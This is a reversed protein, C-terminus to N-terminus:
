KKEGALLLTKEDITIKTKNRLSDAMQRYKTKVKEQQLRESIEGKVEDLSKQRASERKTVKVLAFGDRVKVPKSIEGVKLSFAVPDIETLSHGKVLPPLVGGNSKSRDVSKERALKAFDAGAILQRRITKAESETPVVIQSANVQEPLIFENKNEEYYDSIEQSSISVAADIETQYFKGALIEEKLRALEQTVRPSRQLGRRKAEGLLLQNVLIREATMKVQELNNFAPNWSIKELEDFFNQLTWKGGKYKLFVERKEEETLSPLSSPVPPKSALLSIAKEEFKINASKRINDLFRTWRLSRKTNFIQKKLEEKVREFPPPSLETKKREGAKLVGYFGFNLDIIESVEGEKLSFATQQINTIDYPLFGLDGGKDKTQPDISKEKALDEFKKGQRLAKLVEEAENKNKLFIAWIHVQEQAKEYFDKVEKLSPSSVGEIVKQQLERRTLNEEILALEKVIEQDKGWGLKRTQQAFLKKDILKDLTKKKVELTEARTKLGGIPRWVAEFDSITIKEGGVRAILKGERRACGTLLALLGAVFVASLCLFSVASKKFFDIM